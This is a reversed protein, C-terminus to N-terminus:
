ERELGVIVADRVAEAVIEHGRGGFHVFDIFLSPDTSMSRRLDLHTVGSSKAVRDNAQAYRRQTRVVVGATGHRVSPFRLTGRGSELGAKQRAERRLHNALVDLNNQIPLASLDQEFYAEVVMAAEEHQEAEILADARELPGGVRPNEGLTLLIVRAGVGRAAAIMRLLSSQHEDVPVFARQDAFNVVLAEKQEYFPDDERVYPMRWGATGKKASFRSLGRDFVWDLLASHRALGSVVETTWFSNAELEPRRRSALIRNAINYAITVVDPKMALVKDQLLRNGHRTSYGIVGANHVVVPRDLEAALADELRAPYAEAAEVDFGFTCSDGMCVVRLPREGSGPDGGPDGTGPDGPRPDGPDGPRAADARVRFGRDDIAISIRRTVGWSGRFGPQNVYGLRADPVIFASDTRLTRAAIEGIALVLLVTVLAFGLKRMRSSRVTAGDSEGAM